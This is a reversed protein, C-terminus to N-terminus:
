PTAPRAGSSAAKQKRGYVLILLAPTVFLEFLLASILGLATLLGFKSFPEFDSSMLVLFQSSLIVTTIIVARGAQAYTRMLATVPTCGAHLREKFGHFLHITDDVAIGATVSAVMVTAMDLWIGAVGMFMFIMTIPVLNPIMTLVSQWFSRWLWAMMLFIMLVSGLLSSVQGGVLMEELDAFLRGEGAIDWSMGPEVHERLYARMKEMVNTIDNAKHVNLNLSVRAVRRDEDLFDGLDDGDYIFLFQGILERDRPLVRYDPDEGHFGWNMEKLFDIPSIARDVQPLAEAWEEFARIAELKAPDLLGDPAATEFVVDLPTTGVLRADIRETSQRYPHTPAFYEQVNTEVRVNWIQPLGVAFLAATFALVQLPYRIGIGACKRVALDMWQLGDRPVPWHARDWRIFIQPIVVLVVFYMLVVGAAAILGFEALPAIDSTALSALGIVTTLACFRAPTRVEDLAFKVRAKGTFGRQASYNIANFIHVLSAITLASLLPPIISAMMTFPRGFVAYLAITTSTVVGVSIGAAVVALPRRFLWWVLSLGILTTAPIFIMNNHLMSQLQAIDVPVEGAVATVYGSLRAKAVAANIDNMLSLRQLSNEVANPIILMALAKGDDSVLARRAFPDALAIAARDRSHSDDLVDIGLLPEVTFGDESGSIHDQTTVTLVKNIQPHAELEQAVQDFAELFEDSFLAVGEFMMVVVQDTPFKERLANDVLVAPAHAPFYVRPSNNINLKTLLLPPLTSFLVLFAVSFYLAWPRGKLFALISNSAQTRLSIQVCQEGDFEVPVASVSMEVREGRQSLMEILAVTKEGSGPRLKGAQALSKKLAEHHARSVLDLLPIAALEDLEDVGVLELFAANAYAFTGAQLIAVPDELAELEMRQLRVDKM